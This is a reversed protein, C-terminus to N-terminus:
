FLDNERSESRIQLYRKRYKLQVYKMVKNYYIPNAAGGIIGVVPLGQIFKLLLMDMAFVSATTNVQENLQEETIDVTQFRLMTDVEANGQIWGEGTQLATEMMKLILMQAQRSEYEAGYSLATEYIGKLLTDYLEEMGFGDEDPGVTDCWFSVEIVGNKDKIGISYEREPDFFEFGLARLKDGNAVNFYPALAVPIVTEPHERFWDAKWQIAQENGYLLARYRWFNAAATFFAATSLAEYYNAFEMMADTNGSACRRALSAFISDQWLDQKQPNLNHELSLISLGRILRSEEFTLHKGPTVLKMKPCDSFASPALASIDCLM